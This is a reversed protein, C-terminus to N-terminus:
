RIVLGPTGFMVKFVMAGGIERLYGYQLLHPYREITKSADEPWQNRPVSTLPVADGDFRRIVEKATFTFNQLIPWDVQKMLTGLAAKSKEGYARKIDAAYMEQMKKKGYLSGELVGGAVSKRGGKDKYLLVAHVIGDKTALKWFPIKQLMEETNTFGSGKIGGISRYSYQLIEWVQHAYHRKKEDDDILNVFRENLFQEFSIPEM